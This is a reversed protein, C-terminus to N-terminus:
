GSKKPPSDGSSDLSSKPVEPEQRDSKEMELPSQHGRKEIVANIREEEVDMEEKLDRTARKLEGLGKGLTRALEPLRKPGVILLGLVLIVILEPLGIGFM